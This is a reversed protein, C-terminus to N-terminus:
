KKMGGVQVLTADVVGQKELPSLRISRDLIDFPNSEIKEILKLYVNMMMLVTIRADTEILPIIQSAEAFHDRIRHCQFAIMKLCPLSKVRHLLATESFGAQEIENLPIYIRDRELDEGVDRLINTLQLATSLARGYKKAAPDRYGFIPLSLDRITTAVRDCYIMLEEFTAYRNRVLDMKCGEILEFFANKPIPYRQITDALAITIPHTPSQRYCRDLEEEWLRLLAAPSMQEDQQEDVIDDAYRCCAYVAYIASQKAPPLFDFGISFHPGCQRTIEHCYRYAGELSFAKGPQMPRNKVLTDTM